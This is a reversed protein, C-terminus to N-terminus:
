LSDYKKRRIFIYSILFMVLTFVLLGIVNYFYRDLTNYYYLSYLGDTIFNVPNINALVPIKNAIIYKIQLVMMGALFSFLMTVSILISMKMNESKKNSVGILTGLSTGALSGVFTLLLVPLIQNGLDIKLIFLLYGLLILVESYHIVIAALFSALLLKFKHVPSVSVRAGKKSLNAETEIVANVGFTGGYLCIMGILTYFYVVIPDVNENSVDNFNSTSENLKELVGNRIAEPNSKSINNIVSVVQYYNDVVSKITSQNIGNNKIVVNIKDNVIIYGSIEDDQLLTKAKELSVYQTNFLQEESDESLSQILDKFNEEVKFNDNNVVALDITEFYEGSTLNSFALNFLTALIIPFVLTWFIASKSRLLIKLRNIFIHWFM